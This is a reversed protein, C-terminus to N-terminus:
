IWEQRTIDESVGTMWAGDWSYTLPDDRGRGADVLHAFNQPSFPGVTTRRCSRSHQTPSSSMPTLFQEEQTAYLDVGIRM